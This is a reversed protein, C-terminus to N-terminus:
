AGEKALDEIRAKVAKLNKPVGLDLVQALWLGDTALRAVTADVGKIQEQWSAFSERVVELLAPNHAIATFFALMLGPDEEKSGLRAYARAYPLESSQLAQDFQTLYHELMGKVLANKSPFHYLLGGKSVGAEKAVAELTLSLIGERSIVKTTAELLAAKTQDAIKM